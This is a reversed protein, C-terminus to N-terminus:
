PTVLAVVAYIALVFLVLFVIGVLIFKFPSTAEFDQQYNAHSQVGFVSAFVSKLANSWSVPKAKTM